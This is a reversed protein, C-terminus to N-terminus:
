IKGLAKLIKEPTAPYDTIRKSIANSIAMLVAAPGPSTTIEGVGIAKFRHSPIPTELIVNRFEPLDIFTRWKYDLMNCNLILGTSKDLVTEEFLATDVGAAGLAGHLQGELILPDIIQGCDTAAVVRLLETKGTEVDVEVEVYIAMFNPISYDPEFRGQGTITRDRGIVRRWPIAKKENGRVYLQGDKTELDEPKADILTAAVEFLKRKADEAAEIAASAVAYTGRSGALGFDWPNILTDPPTIHVKDLRLNLVEAVIKCLSSRQGMGSESICSHLVATSDACLRVYAESRDEGVDANGHIGVGVGRRKNGEVATPKGWGKWKDKWGFVKAGKQLAKSYDVGRCIWWIGDRWYYGDGAKVYNKKFFEIPDLDAKELALTLMPLLVSKLEQGGFGRIGGSPNRNTGVVYSQLNWNPCRLLLQAEGLGVAVVGQAMESFAGTDVLWEGSVVTVTGDRKIGVKAHIRSGIRLRWAAFHEEKNYCVKVPKGAVKALAAAYMMLTLPSNKSGYSGGCYTSIARVDAFKTVAQGFNRMMPASQSGTYVTLQNPGEWTAIVGPPEPPLPNTINEYIYTGEVIFDAERLGKDADGMVVEQLTKPGFMPLGRPFINGPFETYLQPADPKLAEDVDFVAPLQEYEVDILELAEDAIERTKTAVLAVADGVFRLRSDLVRRHQPSGEKWDPVNKYTLVAEVGPYVEAKSTDINKIEAHPYPCRLVKGYLMKPLKIDDIYKAKGTVIEQADKRPTAKGLHRYEKAM